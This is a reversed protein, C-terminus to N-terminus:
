AGGNIDVANIIVVMSSEVQGVSNMLGEDNVLVVIVCEPSIGKCCFAVMVIAPVNKNIDFM